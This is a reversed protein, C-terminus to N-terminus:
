VPENDEDDAIFVCKRVRILVFVRAFIESLVNYCQKNKLFKRILSFTM